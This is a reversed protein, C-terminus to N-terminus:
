KLAVKSETPTYPMYTAELEDAGIIYRDSGIAAPNAPDHPAVFSCDPEGYQRDGWPALIEVPGGTSNQIIKVLDTSRYMGTSEDVTYQKAFDGPKLVYREGGPNTIIIDGPEAFNVTEVTGDELTTAIEVRSQAVNANVLTNKIYTPANLFKETYVPDLLDIKTPTKTLTEM